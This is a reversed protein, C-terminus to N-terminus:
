VGLPPKVEAAREGSAASAGYGGTAHFAVALWFAVTAIGVAMWSYVLVDSMPHAVFAADDAPIVIGMVNVHVSFNQRQYQQVAPVFMFAAFPIHVLALLVGITHQARSEGAASTIREYFPSNLVQQVEGAPGADPALMARLTRVRRLRLLAVGLIVPPALLIALRFYALPLEAGALQYGRRPLADDVRRAVLDMLAPLDRLPAAITSAGPEARAKFLERAAPLVRDDTGLQTVAAILLPTENALREHEFGWDAIVAILLIWGFTVLRRLGAHLSRLVNLWHGADPLTM